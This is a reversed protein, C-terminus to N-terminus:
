GGEGAPGKHASWVGYLRCLERPGLDMDFYPAFDAEQRGIEFDAIYREVTRRPCNTLRQIDEPSDGRAHLALVIHVKGKKTRRPETLYRYPRMIFRTSDTRASRKLFLGVRASRIMPREELADTPQLLLPNGDDWALRGGIARDLAAVDSAGTADLLHDVCLSPGDILAGGETEMGRILVGGSSTPDGFTLDLGKFSGSRYTGRTRHFYWHGTSFQTPDRHTFPDPHAESWYYFEIEVLRHAQGGALLRSGNLLRQAIRNFWEDTTSPNAPRQFLTLWDTM